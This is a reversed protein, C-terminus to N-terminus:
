GFELSLKIISIPYMNKTKLQMLLHSVMYSTPHDVQLVLASGILYGVKVIIEAKLLSPNKLFYLVYNIFSM